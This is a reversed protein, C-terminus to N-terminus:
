INFNFYIKCMFPRKYTKDLNVNGNFSLCKLKFSMITLMVVHKKRFTQQHKNNFILSPGFGKYETYCSIKIQELLASALGRKADKYVCRLDLKRAWILYVTKYM